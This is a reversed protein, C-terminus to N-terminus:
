LINQPIIFRGWKECFSKYNRRFYRRRYELDIRGITQHEIHLIKPNNICTYRYGYNIMSFCFDPDEFFMPSYREYFLGIDDVVKKKVMMGGAGIYTYIGGSLINNHIPRFASTMLWPDIGVADFDDICAYYDKVWDSCGDKILQDNDFFLLYQFSFIDKAIDYGFNRGKIVGLNEDSFIIVVRDYHSHYVDLLFSPTDDESGNDVVVIVFDKIDSFKLFRNFFLKTISANNHTLVVLCVIAENVIDNGIKKEIM